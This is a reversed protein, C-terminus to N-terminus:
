RHRSLPPTNEWKRYFDWLQYHPLERVDRDGLSYWLGAWHLFLVPPFEATVIEGNRVEGLPLGAWREVPVDGDSKALEVLSTYPLGSTVILYNLLPQECTELEMHPALALGDPLRRLVEEFRLHERRTAVFGAGAAFSIQADTLADAQYISDRWVLSRHEPIDSFGTVFGFRDLYRFAVSVDGLVVTDCDMYIFERYDGEWLALKRYKGELKGGHFQRSIDDCTRLITTDTWVSFDYRDSLGTLRDVDEAFPVLCLPITPNYRRFSNLFAITRDIIGDNALFYVGREQM